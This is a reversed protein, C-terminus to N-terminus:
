ILALVVRRIAAEVASKVVANVVHRQLDHPITSDPPASSRSPVGVIAFLEHLLTRRDTEDSRYTIVVSGTVPNTTVDRVGTIARIREALAAASLPEQKILPARIRLRGDIHHLVDVAPGM